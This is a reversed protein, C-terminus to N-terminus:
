KKKKNELFDYIWVIVWISVYTIIAAEIMGSITGGITTPEYFMHWQQMMDVAGEYIGLAETASLLLMTVAAFTAGTLAARQTSTKM